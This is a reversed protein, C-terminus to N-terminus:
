RAALADGPAREVTPVLAGDCYVDVAGSRPSRAVAVHRWGRLAGVSGVSAHAAAVFAGPGGEAAPEVVLVLVQFAVGGDGQEALFWYSLSRAGHGRVFLCMADGPDVDTDVRCILEHTSGRDDCRGRM